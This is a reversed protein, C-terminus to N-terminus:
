PPRGLFAEVESIAAATKDSTGATGPAAELTIRGRWPLKPQGAAGTYPDVLTNGEKQTMLVFPYFMVAQGAERLAAIAEVVSADSPTGGYLPRDGDFPVVEASQRAIGSVRWPMNAADATTREVLPKLSCQGCRLDDGFWSVILSTSQCQPLESTLTELSVEFDSKAAATNVNSATTDGFGADYYVATTALTYEGTGPMMAVAQVASPLDEPATMDVDQASRVVEFSFQPVRNGFPELELDEFVVYATGRYAPANEIGQTAAIKPDAEQDMTGPYVRMNLDGPAIEEGDAWVRGVRSIEGECLAVAVSISYSYETTKPQAPQGKGGGTTTARELFQTAWIVQGGLRMRGYLQGIPAGEGAGTLRFKDIKGTEVASSGTGLLKQDIVRGLTAGAARGLAAASVGLISGGVTGGLAAGAASLLLTAM